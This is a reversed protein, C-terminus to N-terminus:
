RIFFQLEELNLTTICSLLIKGRKARHRGEVRQKLLRMFAGSKEQKRKRELSVFRRSFSFICNASRGWKGDLCIFFYCVRM